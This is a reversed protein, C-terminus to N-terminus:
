EIGQTIQRDTNSTEYKKAPVHAVYALFRKSKEFLRFVFSPAVAHEINESVAGLSEYWRQFLAKYGM